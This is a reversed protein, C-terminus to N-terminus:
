TLASDGRVEVSAKVFVKVDLYVENCNEIDRAWCCGSRCKNQTLKAVFIKIVRNSTYNKESNDDAKVYTEVVANARREAADARYITM